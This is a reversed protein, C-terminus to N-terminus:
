PISIIDKFCYLRIFRVPNIHLLEVWYPTLSMTKYRDGTRDAFGPILILYDM